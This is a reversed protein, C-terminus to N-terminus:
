IFYPFNSFLVCHSPRQECECRLAFSSQFLFSHSYNELNIMILCSFYQYLTFIYIGVLMTINNIEDAMIVSGKKDEEKVELLLRKGLSAMFGGMFMAGKSDLGNELEPVGKSVVKNLVSSFLKM